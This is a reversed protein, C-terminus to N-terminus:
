IIECQALKTFALNRTPSSSQLDSNKKKTTHKSLFLQIQWETTLLSSECGRGGETSGTDTGHPSCVELPTEDSSIQEGRGAHPLVQSLASSQHLEAKKAECIACCPVQICWVKTVNTYLIILVM